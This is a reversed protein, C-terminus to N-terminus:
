ALAPGTAGDFGLEWLLALDGADAIGEALATLGMGHILSVLGQAYARVAEDSAVGRLHRADVKVYDIGVEQLRPLDEPTAGAHEVGIRVGLRRWVALTDAVALWDAPRAGEGWEISLLAAARAANSLRAHVASAFGPEALSPLWLHVARPQQDAAIAELALALAALDVQPMLRTRRALALWRSAAEFPGDDRLQVRLPCELHILGGHRDKVQFAALRVRDHALASAIQEHWAHAGAPDAASDGLQEVACGRGSEAHALAADAAALAAGSTIGILGDVGGVAVEASGAHLAPAAALANFLSEATEDAVGPVPLCLAFDSGNLRGAFTGPVREVYTLLLSAIAGLLRDTNDHGLRQNLSELRLVRVLILAGGPGGPGALQDDLRGLFQPRQPLGTVLDFQAQQQLVALQTAQTTFVMRLRRVTANMSRTLDRLEPLAPEDAEIFRGQELAQAQAVTALLPRQWLRLVLACAIAAALALLSLLGVTHTAAEWLADHAWATQAEARLTGIDRGGDGVLARGPEAILPLAAVFWAPARGARPPQELAILHRGDERALVLRHYHGLDFQSAALLQMAALDGQQQSLVQALAAAAERNRQDLQGQLATRVSLSHLVLGGGLALLLLAAILLAIRRM